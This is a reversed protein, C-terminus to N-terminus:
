MAIGQDQINFICSSAGTPASSSSALSSTTCTRSINSYNRLTGKLSLGGEGRQYVITYLSTYKLTRLTYKYTYKPAQLIVKPTKPAQPIIKPAQSMGLPCDEM